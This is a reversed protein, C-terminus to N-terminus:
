IHKWTERRNIRKITDNSVGFARALRQCGYGEAHLSRIMLVEDETLKSRPNRSGTMTRKKEVADRMNELNTGLFLHEPNVCRRDDCTHLVHTGEPINGFAIEYSIRHARVNYGKNDRIQGYGKRTTGAAWLWCTNTKNVKSWFREIDM